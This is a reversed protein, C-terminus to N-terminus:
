ATAEAVSTSVAYLNNEIMFAFPLKWASALNMTELVSGINVAGDGFYSLTVDTTGSHKQAWANGAGKSSRMTPTSVSGPRAANSAM